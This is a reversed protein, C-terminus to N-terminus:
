LSELAMSCSVIAALGVITNCPEILNDRDEWCCIVDDIDLVDCWIEDKYKKGISFTVCARQSVKVEGSKRLWALKYPKPHKETKLALKKVDETSIINDCSGADIVFKCVRGLITCTSQFINSRLLSSDDEQKPTM